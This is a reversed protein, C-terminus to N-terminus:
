CPVDTIGFADGAELWLYNPLSPSVGPSYYQEARSALRLLQM